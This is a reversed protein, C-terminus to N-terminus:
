GKCGCRRAQPAEEQEPDPVGDILGRSRLADLVEHAACGGWCKVLLTDRGDRLTLSGGSHVPCQCRWGRGERRANGLAAAIERASM